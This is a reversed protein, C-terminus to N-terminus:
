WNPAPSETGLDGAFGTLSSGSGDLRAIAAQVSTETRGNVVVDAGAALFGQAAAFGIGSTSATVLVRRGTFSIKVRSTRKQHSGLLLM